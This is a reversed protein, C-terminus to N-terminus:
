GAFSLRTSHPRCARLRPARRRSEASCRGSSSRRGRRRRRVLRQGHAGGLPRRIGRLCGGHARREGSVARAGHLPDQGKMQGTRTTQVRDAAMAVGFDVVRAVGDVGVLVNQPSVDRHVIGLPEGRDGRAEHAAHLGHLVGAIMTAALELPIRTGTKRTVNLLHALSEGQIFEMVLLLEGETAVVDVTAVVNPHHIRAALRAEDVFMSVFEPDGAFHAHLRKVAVTRAFGIPGLLRGVHVTAMGGAAIKDYLAYRGVLQPLPPERAGVTKGTLVRALIDPFM